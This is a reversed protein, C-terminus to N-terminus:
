RDRKGQLIRLVQEVCESVIADKDAADGNAVPQAQGAPPQKVPATNVTVRVHLEKIEIPM